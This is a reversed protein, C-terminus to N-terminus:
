FILKLAIQLSRPGGTQYLPNLGGLTNNLSSTAVGFGFLNQPSYPGYSLNGYVGSFNPHNLLNFAEVRFQLHLREYIPFDRRLAFNMQWAGFGRAYNRPTNGESDFGPGSSPVTFANYNIIKGGPYQSGYLYLPEDPVLNPHYFVYTGTAPDTNSVGIVDVPLASRATVRTDLAWHKLLGSLVANSYEGPVDYTLAAQFNHRIDFDSSSRELLDSLAFNSSADDISHSYTYSALAQLGHSLTRQFQVQLANYDSTPGNKTIALGNGSVFNPNLPIDYISYSELLRRGASGVYSVSLTQKSGLAQELAVNWQFTYPLKLNPDFAYVTSNYPAAISPPPLTMQPSTLPFSVSSLTTRAQFGIGQFGLSGTANGLDYFM